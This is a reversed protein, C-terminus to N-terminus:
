EGRKRKEVSIMASLSIIGEDSLKAGLGSQRLAVNIDKPTVRGNSGMYAKFALEVTDIMRGPNSLARADIIEVLQYAVKEKDGAGKLSLLASAVLLRRFVGTPIPHGLSTNALECIKSAEVWSVILIGNIVNPMERWECSRVPETSADLAAQQAKANADEALVAGNVLLLWLGALYLQASRTIM